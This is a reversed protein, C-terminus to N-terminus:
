ARVVPPLRYTGALLEPRPLYARFTLAFPGYRPAPLWNARRTDGPDSRGIWIDLTGGASRALGPTRDGIAYRNHANQTLFLSGDPLAEYLTLSWFADVPVPERLSLRYLDNGTFLGHGDGASRLYLAETPPLAGLGAAAVVARLVFDDAYAGLDSRPHSWGDVFAHGNAPASVLAVADAVGADIAAAAEAGYGARSFDGCSGAVRVRELADLGDVCAPPDGHILKQAAAFYLPWPSARQAESAPPSSVPGYIKLQDQLAHAAPLDLSADVLIRAILWAHPTPLRIRHADGPQADQSSLRRLGAAGAPTRRGLVAVTDTYMDMIQVSLYRRGCDPIGLWVAGRTTDVFANSYLTDVNPTTVERSGPGAIFRDHAFANMPSPRGNYPSPAARRAAVQLLPLAFLWADRAWLRLAPLSKSPPAAAPEALTRPAVWATGLSTLFSRRQM